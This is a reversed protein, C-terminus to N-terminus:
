RAPEPPSGPPRGEPRDSARLAKWKTVAEPERPYLPLLALPDSAPLRLSVEFLAGADFVPDHVPVGHQSAGERGLLRRLEADAVVATAGDFVGPGIVVLGGADILEVISAAIRFRQRWVDARKWALMVALVGEGAQERVAHAVALATPVGVPRAGTALAIMKATAVAIRISTFGGPGISVAVRSLDSPAVGASRCLRDIAPM